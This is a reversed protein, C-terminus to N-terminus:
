PQSEEFFHTALSTYIDAAEALQGVGVCENAGHALSIWGPGLSAITPIGADALFSTADTAGPFARFPVLRGLREGVAVAAARAVPDAPSLEVAEIWGQASEVYRIRATAVDGLVSEVLAAIEAHLREQRMGPVLRIEVGVTCAGPWVGWSVGARAFIGPNVTPSCSVEGPSDVTPRFREFAHLLDAAVLTANRGLSESLGSHGQQTRVEIEVCCIGRSVLHIGQWPETIGSPEGIVVADLAPLSGSAILAKAGHDSGQEEDATLVLSVTGLGASPPRAALRELAVMMAAVGGKMDTAGLGYALDGEVVLELPPTRWQPLADGVPKTDLHGSFALHGPAGGDLTIVVNPRGSTPELITTTLGRERAWSAVFGAIEPELAGPNQSDIGVLAATLDLVDM